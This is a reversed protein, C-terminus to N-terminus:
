FYGKELADAAARVRERAASRLVQYMDAQDVSQVFHDILFFLTLADGLARWSTELKAKDIIERERKTLEGM